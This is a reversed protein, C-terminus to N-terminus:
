VIVPLFSIYIYQGERGTTKVEKPPTQVKIPPHWVGGWVGLIQVSLKCIPFFQM